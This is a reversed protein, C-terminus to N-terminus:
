DKFDLAELGNFTNKPIEDVVVRFFMSEQSVNSHDDSTDSSFCGFRSMHINKGDLEDLWDSILSLFFNYREYNM